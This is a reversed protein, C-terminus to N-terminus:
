YNQQWGGFVKKYENGMASEKNVPLQNLTRGGIFVKQYVESCKKFRAFTRVSEQENYYVKWVGCCKCNQGKNFIFEKVDEVPYGLFLGIEHPFCPQTMLREKLTNICAQISREIYGYSSLINWVDDNNVAKFLMSPRYVYILSSMDTKRLVEIYVGKENLNMNATKIEFDFEDESVFRYNFLNAMKIGALTPACEKVIENELKRLMYDGNRINRM